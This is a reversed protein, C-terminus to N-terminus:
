CWNLNVELINKQHNSRNNSDQNNIFFQNQATSKILICFSANCFCSFKVINARCHWHKCSTSRVSQADKVFEMHLTNLSPPPQGISFDNTRSLQSTQSYTKGTYHTKEWNENKHMSSPRVIPVHLSITIFSVYSTIYVNLSQTIFFAHSSLSRYSPKM